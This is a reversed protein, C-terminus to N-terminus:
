AANTRNSNIIPMVNYIASDATEPKGEFGGTFRQWWISVTEIPNPAQVTECAVLDYEAVTENKQKFTIHGVKEGARVTGHLEDLEIDQSVNGELDFVSLTAEPDSLTAKVTRDVWDAHSVEAVVPVTGNIGNANMSAYEGSNALSLDIIHSYAWEFMNKADQFRQQTDTSGLVIAYFERGDQLAAGMFSPGALDTMGTKIGIAADYMELLEDTTELEISEKAGGREVTITTSGGSVIDRIMPYQMACMAVRAQDAATSHLDGAYEGDDLGHPNEYLTDTCGIEAAKDNMAAVFVAVPDDGLSPDAAMLQAGVTEAIALAADNGSPVLLAKLATELDMADGQMLNASSEGVAAAAESVAVFTGDKAKDLAVIATMVKTISAIQTSEDANRAFYVTGKSDVLAAFKADVSPCEAVSLERDDVTRGAVIDSKRVEANAQIPAASFLVSWSLAIALVAAVFCTSRRASSGATAGARGNRGMTYLSTLKM